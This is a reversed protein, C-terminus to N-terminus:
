SLQLASINAACVHQYYRGLLHKQHDSPQSKLYIFHIIAIALERADESPVGQIVLTKWCRTGMRRMDLAQFTPM